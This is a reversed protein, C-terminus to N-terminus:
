CQLLQHCKSCEKGGELLKYDDPKDDDSHDAYLRDTDIDHAGTWFWFNFLVVVLCEVTILSSHMLKVESLNSVPNLGLVNKIFLPSELVTKQVQAVLLLLRTGLFKANANGLAKTVPEFKCILLMNYVCLLTIPMFITKLKGLIGVFVENGKTDDGFSEAYHAKLYEHLFTVVAQLVGILVWAHAGQFGAYEVIVLTKPSSHKKIFSYTLRTFIFVVYFQCCAALQFNEEYLALDVEKTYAGEQEYQHEIVMRMRASSQLSMIIYIAPVAIVMLSM